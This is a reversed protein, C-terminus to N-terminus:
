NAPGLDGIADLFDEAARIEELDPDNLARYRNAPDLEVAEHLLRMGEEREGHALRACASLYVVRPDRPTQRVTKDLMKLAEEYEGENYRLLAQLYVDSSDARPNKQTRSECVKLYIRVRDLLERDQPHREAVARLEGRAREYEQKYVLAVAHEFERYAKEQEPSLKPKVKAKPKPEAAAARTRHRSPTTKRKETARM